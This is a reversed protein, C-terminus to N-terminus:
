FAAEAVPAGAVPGAAFEIIENGITATTRGVCVFEWYTAAEWGPFVQSFAGAGAAASDLVAAGLINCRMQNAAVHSPNTCQALSVRDGGALAATLFAADGTRRIVKGKPGTVNDYIPGGAAYQAATIDSTSAVGWM